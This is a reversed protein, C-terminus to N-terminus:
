APSCVSGLAVALAHRHLADLHNLILGSLSAVWLQVDCSPAQHRIAQTSALEHLIETTLEDLQQRIQGLDPRTTPAQDPHETWQQLLGTQVVKSANIQDQFFQVTAAPAIGLAVARQRVGDLEQQERAPDDVPKGTGFKSAAVQDSVLLRQIALDTLPGLSGLSHLSSISKASPPPTDHPEAMAPTVGPFVFAGAALPILMSMLRIPNRTSMSLESETLQLTVVSSLRAARISECQHLRPNTELQV